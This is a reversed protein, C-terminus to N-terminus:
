EVAAAAAAKKKADKEIQVRLWVAVKQAPMRLTLGAESGQQEIQLSNLLERTAADTEDSLQAVAMLGRAADAMLKAGEPTAAVLRLRGVSDAGEEGLSISGSRAQRLTQAKPPADASKLGALDAGALFFTAAASPDLALGHRNDSSLATARGQLVDLAGRLAPGSGALVLPGGPLMAAHARRAPQKSRDVWSHVTAGQYTEARYGDDAKVLTELQQQNLRGALLVVADAENTTPGYLTAGSLDRRLDAGLIAALADMKRGGAGATLQDMLAQGVATTRLRDVDVHVVWRADAGVQATQLPGAWAPFLPAMLLSLWYMKARM